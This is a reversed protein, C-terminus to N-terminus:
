KIQDLFTFYIEHEHCFTFLHHLARMLPLLITSPLFPKKKLLFSVCNVEKAKHMKTTSFKNNRTGMEQESISKLWLLNSIKVMTEQKDWLNTRFSLFLFLRSSGKKHANSWMLWLAVERALTNVIFQKIQYLLPIGLM